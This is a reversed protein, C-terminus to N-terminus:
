SRGPCRLLDRDRELHFICFPVTTACNCFMIHFGLNSKWNVYGFFFFIWQTESALMSGVTRSAQLLKFSETVLIKVEM